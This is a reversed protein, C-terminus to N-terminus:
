NRECKKFCEKHAPGGEYGYDIDGCMACEYVTQECCNYHKPCIRGGIEKWDHNGKACETWIISTSRKAKQM